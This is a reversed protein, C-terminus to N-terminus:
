RSPISRSEWDGGEPRVEQFDGRTICSVVHAVAEALNARAQPSLREGFENFEYGRIGLLYAEPQAGFLERAMALVAKPEVSHSSFGLTADPGGEIRKMWFPEPGGVDADAFLVIDYKAVDAADEVTLQYDAEVTAGPLNRQQIAEALAPGLGDDLRGPNGFGILLVRAAVENM